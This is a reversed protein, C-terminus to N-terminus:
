HYRRQGLKDLIDVMNPTPYKDNMTREDKKRYDIAVRWKQKGSNGIKRLVIWIPSSWRSTSLQIIGEELM